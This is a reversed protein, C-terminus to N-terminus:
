FPLVKGCFIEMFTENESDNDSDYHFEDDNDDYDEPNELYNLFEIGDRIINQAERRYKNKSIKKESKKWLGDTDRIPEEEVKIQFINNQIIIFM